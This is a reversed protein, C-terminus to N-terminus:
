RRLLSGALEWGDPLRGLLAIANSELAIMTRAAAIRDSYILDSNVNTESM